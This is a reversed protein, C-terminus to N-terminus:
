VRKGTDSENGVAALWRLPRANKTRRGRKSLRVNSQGRCVDDSLHAVCRSNANIVRMLPDDTPNFFHPEMRLRIYSEQDGRRVLMIIQASVGIPAKVM